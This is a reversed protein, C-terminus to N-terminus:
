TRNLQLCCFHRPPRDPSRLPVFGSKSPPARPLTWRTLSRREVGGRRCSGICPRVGQRDAPDPTLLAVAPPPGGFNAAIIEAFEGDLLEPDDCLMAVFEDAVRANDNVSDIGQRAAAGM